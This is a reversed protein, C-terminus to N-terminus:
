AELEPLRSPRDGAFGEVRRHFLAPARMISRVGVREFPECLVDHHLRQLRPRVATALAAWEAAARASALARRTHSSRRVALMQAGHIATEVLDRVFWATVALEHKAIAASVAHQADDYRASTRAIAAATCWGDLSLEQLADLFREVSRSESDPLAGLSSWAHGRSRFTHLRHQSDM